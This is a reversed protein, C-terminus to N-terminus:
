GRYGTGPARVAFEPCVHTEAVFETLTSWIRHLDSKNRVGAYGAKNDRFCALGGWLGHGAPSYDSYACSFCVRFVSGGPLARQIDALADEFGGADKRSSYEESLGVLRLKLHESTIGGDPRPEGLTLEAELRAPQARDEVVIEVPLSWALVCSCLAAGAFVFQQRESESLPRTPELADFDDGAFPVGRLEIRLSQGDIELFASSEGVKDRYTASCRIM